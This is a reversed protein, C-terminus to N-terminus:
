PQPINAITLRWQIKYVGPSSVSTQDNSTEIIGTSGAALNLFQICDVFGVCSGGGCGAYIYNAFNSRQGAIPEFAAGRAGTPGTPGTPGTAGTSGNLGANGQIGPVGQPGQPGMM